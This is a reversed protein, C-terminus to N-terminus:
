RLRELSALRAALALLMSPELARGEGVDGRDAAPHRGYFASRSSRFFYEIDAAAVVLSPHERLYAALDELFLSRGASQDFARHLRRSASERLSEPSLGAGDSRQRVLRRLDREARAFPAPGDPRLRRSRQWVLWGTALMLAGLLVGLRQWLGARDVNPKHRDPQLDGLGQRQFPQNGIIPSISLAQADARGVVQDASRLVLAPLFLLAVQDNAATIQYVLDIHRESGHTRVTVQRLTLWANIVGPEPLLNSAFGSASDRTIIRRTVLDGLQIGYSREIISQIPAQSTFRGSEDSRAFCATACLAVFLVVRVGASPRGSM